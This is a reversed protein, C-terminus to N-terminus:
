WRNSAGPSQFLQLHYGHSRAMRVYPVLSAPTAGGLQLHNLRLGVAGGDRLATLEQM